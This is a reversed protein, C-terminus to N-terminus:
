AFREEMEPLPCRTLDAGVVSDLAGISDACLQDMLRAVIPQPAALIWRPYGEHRLIADIHSAARELAQREIEKELHHEEGCSMGHTMGVRDGKAFRGAQDTVEESVSNVHMRLSEVRDESLHRQEIPDGGAPHVKLVRVRGLNAAIILQNAPMPRSPQTPGRLIAGLRPQPAHFSRHVGRMAGAPIAGHGTPPPM